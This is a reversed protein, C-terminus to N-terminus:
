IPLQHHRAERGREGAQHRRGRGGISGYLERLGLVSFIHCIKRRHIEGLIGMNLRVDRAVGILRFKPCIRRGLRVAVRTSKTSQTQQNNPNRCIVLVTGEWLDPTRSPFACPIM